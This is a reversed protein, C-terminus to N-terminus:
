VLNNLKKEANHLLRNNKSQKETGEGLIILLKKECFQNKM